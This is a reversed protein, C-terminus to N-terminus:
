GEQVLAEISEILKPIDNKAAEWLIKYNVNLYDHVIRHRMGIVRAWPVEPHNARYKPSIKSAAEGIVQIRYAIADRLEADRDYQERSLSSVRAAIKRATDLIHGILVSDDREM